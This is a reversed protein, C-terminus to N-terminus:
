DASAAPSRHISYTRISGLAVIFLMVAGATLILDIKVDYVHRLHRLLRRARGTRIVLRAVPRRRAVRPRCYLFTDPVPDSRDAGCVPVSPVIIYEPFHPYVWGFIAIVTGGVLPWRLRLPHKPM